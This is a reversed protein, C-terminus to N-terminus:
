QQTRPKCVVLKRLQKRRTERAKLTAIEAKLSAIEAQAAAYLDSLAEPVNREAEERTRGVALLGRLSPSTAFHLGKNGAEIDLRFDHKGVASDTGYCDLPKDSM